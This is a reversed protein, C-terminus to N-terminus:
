RHGRDDYPYRCHIDGYIELHGLAGHLTHLAVAGRSGDDDAAALVVAVLFVCDGHM